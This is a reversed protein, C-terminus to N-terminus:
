KTINQIHTFITHLACRETDHQRKTTFTHKQKIANWSSAWLAGTVRRMQVVDRSAAYNASLTRAEELLSQDGHEEVFTMVTRLEWIASHVRNKTKKDHLLLHQRYKDSKIIVHMPAFDHGIGWWLDWAECLKMSRKLTFDAPVVIYRDEKLFLPFGDENFRKEGVHSEEDVMVHSINSQMIDRLEEKLGDMLQSKFTDFQKQQASLQVGAASLPILNAVKGTEEAVQLLMQRTEEQNKMLSEMGCLLTVTIPIGTPKIFDDEKISIFKQLRGINQLRGIATNWIVHDEPITSKLWGWHYIISASLFSCLLTHKADVTGFLLSNIQMLENADMNVWHPAVATFQSSQPSLLALLRGVVSDGAGEFKAYRLLVSFAETTWRARIIIPILVSFDISATTGASIGGKRLCHTVIDTLGLAECLDTFQKSLSDRADAPKGHFLPKNQGSLSPHFTLSLLCLSRVYLHSPPLSVCGIYKPRNCLPNCTRAGLLM